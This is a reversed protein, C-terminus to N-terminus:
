EQEGVVNLLSVADAMAEGETSFGPFPCVARCPGAQDLADGTPTRAVWIHRGNKAQVVEIDVADDRDRYKLIRRLMPLRRHGCHVCHWEGAEVLGLALDGGCRNCARLNVLANM